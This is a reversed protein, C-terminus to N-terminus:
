INQVIKSYLNLMIIGLCSGTIFALILADVFGEVNKTTLIKKKPNNTKIQSSQTEAVKKEENSSYNYKTALENLINLYDQNTINNSLHTMVTELRSNSLFEKVNKNHEYFENLNSNYNTNILNIIKNTIYTKAIKNM